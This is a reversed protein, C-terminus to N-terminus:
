RLLMLRKTMVDTGTSLRYIYMGSAVENGAGDRGDWTVRYRGPTYTQDVLTRITRGTIDFLELRVMSTSAIDFSIQTEANFPNPYNQNLM